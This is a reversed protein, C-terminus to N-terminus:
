TAIWVATDTVPPEASQYYVTTGSTNLLTSKVSGSPLANVNEDNWTVSIGSSQKPINFSIVDIQDYRPCAVYLEWISTAQKYIYVGYDSISDILFSNLTPDPTNGNTFVIYIKCTTKFGRRTIELSIPSDMYTASIKLTAFKLYTSGERATSSYVRIGKQATLQGTMTGGALPLYSHTHGAAAYATSATYAASGLGKVAVNATTGNTNVSITGNSSGTAISRVGSNSFTTGSLSIGTGASYTTNTDTNTDTLAITTNGGQNTTFTGKTTGNQTITITGNGVSPVSIDVAKSNPTLATGNVKVTEIVNAQANSPAHASDAHIKAANWNTRETSTIHKVTDGIHSILDTIAKSIKGFAVSLKEGSSLKVLTTEETYTPTQDNTAVNPVNGLGVQSKTVGHPNSTNGAHNTQGDSLSKLKEDIIDMNQNIVDINVNENRLPKNLNYNTTKDTM